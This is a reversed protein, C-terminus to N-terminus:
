GLWAAPGFRHYVLAEFVAATATTALGAALQPSLAASVAPFLVSYGPTHHGGYWWNNWLGFGEESFLKARLLHAALDFSPPSVIVYVLAFAGAVVTPALRKCRAPSIMAREPLLQRAPAGGRAADM